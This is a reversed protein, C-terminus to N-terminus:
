GPRLNIIATARKEPLLAALLKGAELKREKFPNDIAELFTGKEDFVLFYPALAAKDSVAAGPSKEQTAVWINGKQEAFALGSVLFLVAAIFLQKKMQM